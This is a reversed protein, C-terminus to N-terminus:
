TQSKVLKFEVTFYPVTINLMICATALYYVIRLYRIRHHKFTNYQEIIHLVRTRNCLRSHWGLLKFNLVSISSISLM